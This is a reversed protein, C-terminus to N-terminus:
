QGDGEIKEVDMEQRPDELEPEQVVSAGGEKEQGPEIDVNQAPPESRQPKKGGLKQAAVTEATDSSEQGDGRGRSRSRVRVSM